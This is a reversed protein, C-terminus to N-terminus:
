EVIFSFARATSGLYRGRPVQFGSLLLVLELQFVPHAESKKSLNLDLHDLGSLGMTM